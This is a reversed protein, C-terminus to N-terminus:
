QRKGLYEINLWNFLDMTSYFVNIKEDQLSPFTNFVAKDKSNILIAAAKSGNYVAELLTTSKRSFCINNSIAENFDEIINIQTGYKEYDVKKDKPHLKISLRMAQKEMLPLLEDIIKINVYVERPETFFVISIEKVNAKKVAFMSQAIDTDYVFKDTSYLANLHGAARASTTHFLDGTFCHPLKFGYELGHPICVTKINYKHALQEEMIAFRDLNNGTYFLTNAKKLSFYSDLLYGYLLTHIIRESYYDTADLASYLGVFENIMKKYQKIESYSHVWAKLVWRIRKRRSFYNYLTNKDDFNEYIIYVDHLFAMKKKAAPTRIVSIKEYRTDLSKSQPRILMQWLLYIMSEILKLHATMKRELKFLAPVGTIKIDCIRAADIIMPLLVEDADELKIMEVQKKKVFLILAQVPQVRNLYVENIICLHSCYKTINEDSFRYLEDTFLDNLGYNEDRYILNNQKVLLTNL